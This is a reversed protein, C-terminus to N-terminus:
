APEKVAMELHRNVMKVFEKAQELPEIFEYLSLNQKKSKSLWNIIERQSFKFIEMSLVQYLSINDNIDSLFRLYSILEIIELQKFLQGPGLFQFHIKERELVRTFQDAQSNARM